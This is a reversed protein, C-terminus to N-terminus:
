KLYRIYLHELTEESSIFRDSATFYWLVFLLEDCVAWCAVGVANDLMELLEYHLLGSGGGGQSHM